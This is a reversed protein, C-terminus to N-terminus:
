NNDLASLTFVNTTLAIIEAQGDNDVDTTVVEVGSRGSSSYPFWSTILKGDYTFVKVEPSGGIGKGTIIEEIGDGDVDGTAVYTGGYFNHEYSFFESVLVKGYRDFIKVHPGGRNGAGAIIEIQGDGNVDGAAVNVGLNSWSKKYAHWSRVLKGTDTYIRIENSGGRKTGTILESKGDNNLDAFDISIGGQYDDGYPIILTKRFGYHSFIEIKNDGTVVTEDRGGGDLDIKTITLNGKFKPNYAFFGARTNEGQSNFIRAFSGNTFPSKFIERIPRLLITGDESRLTIQNIIGGNNILKNQDSKVKEYEFDFYVTETRDTSNVIALGNEFDRQWVSSTIHGNSRDLLDIPTSKAKGLNINFEDYWWFDERKNTGYDFSYYGNYLLTSSLGYRMRDSNLYIGTNDSDSNIINIRPSYGQENVALYKQMSGNWGGEWFEPFSEFMRGNLYEHYSGDGNGIILYKNGLRDRLKKFLDRNSAQWLQNIKSESDRKGDGDIDMDPNFWAATNWVNDFLLGDWLGTSLVKTYYFDVLYDNYTQGYKNKIYQNISVNGPWYTVNKGDYTKLYWKEDIGSILDHWLGHGSPEVISLRERPVENATTYALIIIDPNLERMKAIASASDVQAKMDLSLIDWKALVPVEAMTIPTKWYLNATKPTKYKPLEFALTDTAVTMLVLAFISLVLKKM